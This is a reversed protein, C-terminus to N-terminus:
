CLFLPANPLGTGGGTQPTIEVGMHIMPLIQTEGEEEGRKM